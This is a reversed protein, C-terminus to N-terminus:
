WFLMLLVNVPFLPPADIEFSKKWRFVIGIEIKGPRKIGIPESWRLYVIEVCCGWIGYEIVALAFIACFM